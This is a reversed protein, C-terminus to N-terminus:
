HPSHEKAQAMSVQRLLLFESVNESTVMGVLRGDDDMVLACAGPASVLPLAEQLPQEPSLRTFERDM